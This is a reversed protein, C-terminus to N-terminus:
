VRRLLKAPLAPFWSLRVWLDSLLVRSPLVMLHRRFALVRDPSNHAGRNKVKAQICRPLTPHLNYPIPYPIDDIGNFVAIYGGGFKVGWGGLLEGVLVGRGGEGEM